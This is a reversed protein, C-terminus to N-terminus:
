GHNVKVKEKPEEAYYESTKKTATVKGLAEEIFQSANVCAKGKFGHTKVEVAGEDDIDIVIELM